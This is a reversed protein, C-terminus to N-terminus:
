AEANETEVDQDVHLKHTRVVLSKALCFKEVSILGDSFRRAERSGKVRPIQPAKKM